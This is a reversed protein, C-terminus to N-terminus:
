GSRSMPLTDEIEYRVAIIEAVISVAIEGPTIGGIDIGIPARLRDISQASIGSENLRDKVLQIKSRSGILGVYKANREGLAILWQLDLEHSRTVFVLYTGEDIGLDDLGDDPTRVEIRDAYPM